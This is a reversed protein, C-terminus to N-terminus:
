EDNDPTDIIIDDNGDPMDDGPIDDDDPVDVEVEDAVIDDAVIDNDGEYGRPIIICPLSKDGPTTAFLKCQDLAYMQPDNRTPVITTGYMSSVARNIFPLIGRIYKTEGVAHLNAPSINHIGFEAARSKISNYINKENSKLNDYLITEPIVRSDYISAWGAANLIGTAIRHLEYVFRRTLDTGDTIADIYIRQEVAQLAALSKKVIEHQTEPPITRIDVAGAESHARVINKYIRRIKPQKYKHVFHETLPEAYNYDRRLKFRTYAISEDATVNERNYMKREIAEAEDPIIDPAMLIVRTSEELIEKRTEKCDLEIQIYDDASITPELYEITAGTLYIMTILRSIFNNSSLNKIRTNELWLTFYNTENLQIEGLPGYEFTLLNDGPNRFLNMRSEQHMQKIDAPHTPLNNGMAELCLYYQKARVNRIRGLMQICSEANCSTDTFYAFIYDFHEAEFSIGASVTPTYIVVDFASWYRHVNSFHEWKEGAPTESTYIAVYKDPYKETISRHLLKAIALSSTPIAIKAGADLARYIEAIWTNKNETINYHDDLANMYENCHYKIKYGSEPTCRIKDIVNYTRDSMNADMAIVHKAYKLLWEFVSWSANFQKLLGSNFQELISESEDLIVLDPPEDGVEIIYRHLSEVQIILRRQRLGGAIDSYLTFDPFREKINGAFTQRFSLFVIRHKHMPSDTYYRQIYEALAKTKGMKMAARVCLTDTLSFQQIEPENYVLKDKYKMKDFASIQQFKHCNDIAYEIKGRSIALGNYTQNDVTVADGAFTGILKRMGREAHRCILFIGGSPDISILLTNDHHHIRDCLVCHSPIIRRFILINGRRSRFRHGQTYEAAARLITDTSIDAIAREAGAETKDEIISPLLETGAVNQIITDPPTIDEALQIDWENTTVIQKIRGGKHNDVIRFNQTSKNVQLDIYRHLHVPLTRFFIATFAKAELHNAAHYDAAVIHYSYKTNGNDLEGTSCMVILRPQRQYTSFFTDAICTLIDNMTTVIDFENDVEIDIDFKLKQPRTGFIVEHFCRQEPLLTDIETFYHAVNDFIYYCRENYNFTIFSTDPTFQGEIVDDPRYHRGDKPTFLWHCKKVAASFYM